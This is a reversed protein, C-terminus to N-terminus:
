SDGLNRIPPANRPVREHIMDSGDGVNRTVGLGRGGEGVPLSLGDGTAAMSHHCTVCSINRNGSLIKDSMLVRGLEVKEPSPAGFDYTPEPIGRGYDAFVSGFSFLLLGSVL